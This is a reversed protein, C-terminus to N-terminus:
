MAGGCLRGKSRGQFERFESVFFEEVSALWSAVRQEALTLYEELDEKLRERAWGAASGCEFGLKFAVVTAGVTAVAGAIRGILGWLLLATVLGGATATVGAALGGALIRQDFSMRPPESELKFSDRARKRLDVAYFENQLKPSADALERSADEMLYNLLTDFLVDARAGVMAPAHEVLMKQAQGVEANPGVYYGLEVRLKEFEQRVDDAISLATRCNM